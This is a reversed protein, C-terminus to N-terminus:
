AFRFGLIMCAQNANGWAWVRHNQLDSDQPASVQWLGYAVTEELSGSPCQEFLSKWRACAENVPCGDTFAKLKRIEVRCIERWRLMLAKYEPSKWRVQSLLRRVDTFTGCAEVQPYSVKKRM